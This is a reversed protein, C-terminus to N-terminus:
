LQEYDTTSMPPEEYMCTFGFSVPEVNFHIMNM